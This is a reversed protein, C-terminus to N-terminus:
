AAKNLFRSQESIKLALALQGDLSRTKQLMLDHEPHDKFYAFLQSLLAVVTRDTARQPSGDILKRHQSIMEFPSKLTVILRKNEVSLNSTIIEIIERRQGFYALKYSLYANNVLEVIGEVRKIVAQESEDLNELLRKAANEEMVLLNKKQLYTDKEVIGDIYADIMKALRSQIQKIQLHLSKARAVRFEEISKYQLKLNRRIAKNEERKFRLQKLLPLLAAEVDEERISKQQCTKTHCRYYIHRKQVEGILRVHCEACRLLRRFLMQHHEKAKINKGELVTQVRNFIGQTIIPHHQGAYTEGQTQVKIVGLYFPNHLLKSLGNRTVKKGNKNRLGLAHMKEALANLGWKGTAYLEFTKKVLPGQTPDVAKPQGKGCDLYGVPAPRPYLGQKLRGYFGKRTEERLNRIYDSAVVAQIDASLRGGRSHLDLSENAFHVEIGSDILEGLDAWDKLNRASRDIKHIIVGDARGQKLAKLMQNFIPRGLKAATEKEEFEESVHLNWRLAYQRIAERQEELSTGQQGQRLTSVRIYAFYRRLMIM